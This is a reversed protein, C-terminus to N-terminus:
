NPYVVSLELQLTQPAQVFYKMRTLLSLIGGVVNADKWPLWSHMTKEEIGFRNKLSQTLLWGDVVETHRLLEQMRDSTM